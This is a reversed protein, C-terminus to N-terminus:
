GERNRGTVYNRHGMRNALEPVMHGETKYIVSNARLAKNFDEVIRKGSPVNSTTPCYLLSIASVITLPTQMSFKAPDGDPLYATVACHTCLIKQVDNNLTNDLPKIEPSNGIPRGNYPTGKNM